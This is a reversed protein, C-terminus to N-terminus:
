GPATALWEVTPAIWRQIEAREEESAVGARASPDKPRFRRRFDAVVEESAPLNCFRMIRELAEEDMLELNLELYRGVPLSRGFHCAAEVCARWQLCAVQLPTLERVLDAM